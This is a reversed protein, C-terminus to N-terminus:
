EFQFEIYRRRYIQTEKKQFKKNWKFKKKATTWLNLFFILHGFWFSAVGNAERLEIGM